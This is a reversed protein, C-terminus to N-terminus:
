PMPSLLYHAVFGIRFWNWDTTRMLQEPTQLKRSYVAVVGMQCPVGVFWLCMWLKNLSQDQTFNRGNWYVMAFISCTVFFFIARGLYLIPDRVVMAAHRRIMIAVEKSFSGRKKEEVGSKDETIEEKTTGDKKKEWTNLINEM